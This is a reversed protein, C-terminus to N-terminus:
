DDFIGTSKEEVLKRMSIGVQHDFSHQEGRAHFWVRIRLQTQEEVLNTPKFRAEFKVTCKTKSGLMSVKQPESEVNGNLIILRIQEVATDNPNGLELEVTELRYRFEAGKILLTLDNISGTVPEFVCYPVIMEEPLLGGHVYIDEDTSLFRNARRASLYNEPLLYDNASLFFCDHKLNDALNVFREHKVSVYRIVSSRLTTQSLSTSILTTKYQSLFVLQVMIRFLMSRSRKKSNINILLRVAAISWKELLHAIHDHHPMGIENSSKHFARDVALYNVVHLHLM